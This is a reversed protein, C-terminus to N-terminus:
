CAGQTRIDPSPSRRGVYKMVEHVATPMDGFGGARVDIGGGEGATNGDNRIDCKFGSM